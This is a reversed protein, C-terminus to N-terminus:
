LQEAADLILDGPVSGVIPVAEGWGIDGGTLFAQKTRYGAVFV